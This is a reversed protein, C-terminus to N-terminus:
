PNQESPKEDRFKYVFILALMAILWLLNQAGTVLWDAALALAAVVPMLRRLLTKNQWWSFCAWIVFM